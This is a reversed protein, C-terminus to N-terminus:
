RGKALALKLGTRVLESRKMGHSKAYADAQRLLGKEVTVSVIETGEKSLKPRGGLNKKIKNWRARQRTTLPKSEALLKETSKADIERYIREKEADPLALFKSPTLGESEAKLRSKKNNMGM